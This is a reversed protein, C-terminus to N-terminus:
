DPVGAGINIFHAASIAYHLCALLDGAVAGDEDPEATILGFLIHRGPGLTRMPFLVTETQIIRGSTYLENSILVLGCPHEMLKEFKRSIAGHRQPPTIALYNGHTADFGWRKSTGTGSLRICYAGNEPNLELMIVGPLLDIIRRPEIGSKLPMLGIKPLGFWYDAFKGTPAYKYPGTQNSKLGFISATSYTPDMRMEMEAHM